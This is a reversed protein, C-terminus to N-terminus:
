VHGVGEPDDRLVASDLQEYSALIGQNSGRM